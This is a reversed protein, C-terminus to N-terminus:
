TSTKSGHLFRKNDYTDHSNFIYKKRQLLLWRFTNRFLLRKFYICFWCCCIWLLRRSKDYANITSLRWVKSSLIAELLGPVVKPGLFLLTYHLTTYHLTNYHLTAYYHLTTYHLITSYLKTFYASYSFYNDFHTRCFYLETRLRM